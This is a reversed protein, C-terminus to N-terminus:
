FMNMIACSYTSTAVVKCNFILSLLPLGDLNNNLEVFDLAKDNFNTLDKNLISLMTKKMWLLFTLNTMMLFLIM